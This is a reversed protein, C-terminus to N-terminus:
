EDKTSTLERIRKDIIWVLDEGMGISPRPLLGLVVVLNDYADAKPKLRDITARMGIIEQKCRNMMEIAEQNSIEPSM